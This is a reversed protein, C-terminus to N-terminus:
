GLGTIKRIGLKAKDGLSKLATNSSNSYKSALAAFMALAEQEKQPLQAIATAANLQLSAYEAELDYRQLHTLSKMIFENADNFTELAKNFNNQTFYNYVLTNAIKTYIQPYAKSLEFIPELTSNSEQTLMQNSLNAAYNVKARLLAFKEHDTLENIHVESFLKTYIDKSIDAQGTKFYTQALLTSVKVSLESAISTSISIENLSEIVEDYEEQAFKLVALNYKDSESSDGKEKDNNDKSSDVQMNDLFEPKKIASLIEKRAKDHIEKKLDLIVNNEPDHLWDLVTDKANSIAKKYTFIGGILSLLSVLSIFIAIQKEMSDITVLAEKSLLESSHLREVSAKNEELSSVRKLIDNQQNMLWTPVDYTHTQSDQGTPSDSNALVNFSVCILFLLWLRSM